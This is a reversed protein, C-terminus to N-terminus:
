DGRSDSWLPENYLSAESFGISEITSNSYLEKMFSLTANTTPLSAPVHLFHLIKKVYVFM